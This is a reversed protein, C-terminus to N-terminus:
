TGPAGASNYFTAKLEVSTAPLGAWLHAELRYTAGPQLRSMDLTESVFSGSTAAVKDEYTGDDNRQQLYMDLEAPTVPVATAHMSADDADAPVTFEICGSTVDCVRLGAGSSPVVFTTAIPPQAVGVTTPPTPGAAPGAVKTDLEIAVAPQHQFMPDTETRETTSDIFSTAVRGDEFIAVTQFDMRVSNGFGGTTNLDGLGVQYRRLLKPEASKIGLKYVLDRDVPKQPDTNDQAHMAVAAVGAYKNARFDIKEIVHGEPLPVDIATWTSGDATWRYIFHVGLPVVNHVRGASDVQYLGEPTPGDVGHWSVDSGDLISWPASVDGSALLKGGGLTFMGRSTNPQVWDLNPDPPAASLAKKESSSLQDVFKSTVQVYTLGDTSYLWLEKPVGGKVLTLYEVTRGDITFPGPVVAIWERDYFPQHLPMEQYRWEKTTGEYKFALLHDGSYADWEVGVIDGGPAAAVAGEGFVLPSLPRASRWTQGRDDSFNAYNGGFDVLRGDKTVTLYNECCNGTSKVVRWTTQGPKDDAGTQDNGYDLTGYTATHIPPTIDVVQAPLGPVEVAFSGTVVTGVSAGLVLAVVILLAM